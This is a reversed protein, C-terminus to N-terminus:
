APASERRRGRRYRPPSPPLPSVRRHDWSRSPSRIRPPGGRARKRRQLGRQRLGGDAADLGVKGIQAANGARVQKGGALHRGGRQLVEGELGLAHLHQAGARLGAKLVQRTAQMQPMHAHRRGAGHVRAGEGAGIRQHAIRFGDGRQFEGDVARGQAEMRVGGDSQGTRGHRRRQVAYGHGMIGAKRHLRPLHQGDPGIGAGALPGIQRHAAAELCRLNEARAGGEGEAQEAAMGRARQLRPVRQVKGRRLFARRQRRLHLRGGGVQGM